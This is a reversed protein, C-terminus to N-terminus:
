VNKFLYLGQTPIYFWFYTNILISSLRQEVDIDVSGTSVIVEHETQPYNLSM